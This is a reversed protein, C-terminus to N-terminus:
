ARASRLDDATFLATLRLGDAALVAVGGEGRDVVCLVDEVIAGRQRLEATSARVQGGTTVVDEVVLVRRGDVDAGEALRRTGYTKAQKRVFAIPLGGVLGIATAVPVGGLELGALVETGPPLRTAALDAVARLLVPDGTFRYKDFYETATRGSRLTFHGVLHASRYLAAALETERVGVHNGQGVRCQGAADLLIRPVTLRPAPVGDLVVVPFVRASNLEYASTGDSVMRYLRVREEGTAVVARAEYSRDGLEVTVAPSARLNHFWAPHRHAGAKSGVVFVRGADDVGFGLPVTTRRGTRAGTTLLLVPFPSQSVTGHNVRFEDIVGQNYTRFEQDSPVTPM